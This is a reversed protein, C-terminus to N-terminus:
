NVVNVTPSVTVHSSDCFLQLVYIYGPQVELIGRFVDNKTGDPGICLHARQGTRWRPDDSVNIGAEISLSGM